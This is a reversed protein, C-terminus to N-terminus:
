VIVLCFLCQWNGSQYRITGTCVYTTQQHSDDIHHGSATFGENDDHENDVDEEGDVTQPPPPRALEPDQNPDGGTLLPRNEQASGSM